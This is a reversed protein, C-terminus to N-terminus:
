AAAMVSKASDARIVFRRPYCTNDSKESLVQMEICVTSGDTLKAWIDLISLKDEVAAKELFPNVVTLGAVVRPIGKNEFIANLLAILRRTGGTAFFLKFAYDVRLDMLISLDIDPLNTKM